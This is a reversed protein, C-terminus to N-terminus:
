GVKWSHRYDSPSRADFSGILGLLIDAYDGFGLGDETTPSDGFIEIKLADDAM